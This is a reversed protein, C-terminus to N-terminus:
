PDKRENVYTFVPMPPAVCVCVYLLIPMYPSHLCSPYAFIRVSAPAYPGKLYTGKLTFHDVRRCVSPSIRYKLTRYKLTIPQVNKTYQVKM